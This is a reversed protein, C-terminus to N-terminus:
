NPEGAPTFTRVVEYVGLEFKAITVAELLFPLPAPDQRMAQYDDISRWHGLRPRDALSFARASIDM